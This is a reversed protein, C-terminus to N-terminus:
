GRPFSMGYTFKDFEGEALADALGPDILAGALNQHPDIRSIKSWGFDIEQDSIRGLRMLPAAPPMLRAKAFEDVLHNTRVELAELGAGVACDVHILNEYSHRM